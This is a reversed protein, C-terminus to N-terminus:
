PTVSRVHGLPRLAHGEARIGVRATARHGRRRPSTTPSTLPTHKSWHPAYAGWLWDDRFTTLFFAGNRHM